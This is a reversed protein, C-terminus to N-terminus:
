EGKSSRENEKRLCFKVEQRRQGWKQLYELMLHDTPITKEAASLMRCM